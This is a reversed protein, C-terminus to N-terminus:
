DNEPNNSNVIYNTYLDLIQQKRTINELLELVKNIKDSPSITDTNHYYNLDIELNDIEGKLKNIILTSFILM